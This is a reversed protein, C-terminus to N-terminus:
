KIVAKREPDTGYAWVEDNVDSIMEMRNTIKQAFTSTFVMQMNYERVEEHMCYFRNKVQSVYICGFELQGCFQKEIQLRRLHASAKKVRKLVIGLQEMSEQTLVTDAFADFTGPKGEGDSFNYWEETRGNGFVIQLMDEVAAVTGAQMYWGITSKVISRKQDLPLAQDYYHSNLEIALLDVLEEPLGDINVLLKMRESFALMKEKGRKLAYSIAQVDSDYKMFAPLLDTIEGADYNIM